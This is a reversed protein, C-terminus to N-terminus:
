RCGPAQFEAIIEDPVDAAAGAVYAELQEINLSGIPHGHIRPERLCFQLSLELMSVGKQECWRRMREARQHDENWKDRAVIQEFPTGTLWGRMISWGNMVGLDHDAAAPLM